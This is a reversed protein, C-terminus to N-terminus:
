VFTSDGSQGPAPAYGAPRGCFPGSQPLRDFQPALGFIAEFPAVPRPPLRMALSSLPIRGAFLEEQIMMVASADRALLYERVDDPVGSDDLILM